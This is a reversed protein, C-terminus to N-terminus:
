GERWCAEDPAEEDVRMRAGRGRCPYRAFERLPSPGRQPCESSAGVTSTNSAVRAVPACTADRAGRAAPPASARAPGSVPRWPRERPALGRGPRSPGPSPHVEAWRAQAEGWTPWSAAGLNSSHPPGRPAVLRPGHGGLHGGVGGPVCIPGGFRAWLSRRPRTNDLALLPHHSEFECGEAQSAMSAPPGPRAMTPGVPGGGHRQACSAHAMAPRSPGPYAANM